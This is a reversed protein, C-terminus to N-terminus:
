FVTSISTGAGPLPAPTVPAVGGVGFGTQVLLAIGVGLGTAYQAALPGAIGMAPLNSSLLGILTAPNSLSVKTVDVGSSVGISTGLYQARANLHKALGLEVALGVAKSPGTLGAASLQSVVQGAPVFFLKGTATGLGSLGATVGNSTVNQLQPLWAFVSTGVAGAIKPLNPAGPAVVRGITLIDKALTGPDVAM